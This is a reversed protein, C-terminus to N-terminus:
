LDSWLKAAGYSCSPNSSVMITTQSGVMPPLVPTSHHAFVLDSRPITLDVHLITPDSLSSRLVLVSFLRRHGLLSTTSPFLLSPSRHFHWRIPTAKISTHPHPTPPLPQLCPLRHAGGKDIYLIASTPFTLFSNCVRCGRPAAWISTSPAPTPFTLFPSCVHYSTLAMRISTHPLPALFRSCFHRLYSL